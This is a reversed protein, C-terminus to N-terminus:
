EGIVEVDTYKTIELPKASGDPNFSELGLV